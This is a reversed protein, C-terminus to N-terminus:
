QAQGVDNQEQPSLIMPGVFDVLEYRSDSFQRLRWGAEVLRGMYMYAFRQREVGAEYREENDVCDEWCLNRAAFHENMTKLLWEARERIM